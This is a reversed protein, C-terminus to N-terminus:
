LSQLRVKSKAKVTGPKCIVMGRKLQERKVGRLLLGSNDGAQASDLDKKFTEMGTVTTKIPDKNFGVIEIEDGKKLMGREVRGTVVTGRGAISFVDLDMWKVDYAM